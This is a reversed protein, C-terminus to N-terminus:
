QVFSPILKEKYVRLVESLVNRNVVCSILWSTYSKMEFSPVVIAWIKITMNPNRTRWSAYDCDNDSGRCQLDQEEVEAILGHEIQIWTGASRLGRHPLISAPGSHKPTWPGEWIRAAEIQLQMRSRNLIHKQRCPNLMIYYHLRDHVPFKWQPLKQPCPNGEQIQKCSTQTSTQSNKSPVVNSSTRFKISTWCWLTYSHQPRRTLVMIYILSTNLDVWLKCRKLAHVAM